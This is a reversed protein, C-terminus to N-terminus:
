NRWPRWTMGFPRKPILATHNEVGSDIALMWACGPPTSSANHQLRSSNCSDQPYESARCPLDCSPSDAYGTRNLCRKNSGHM